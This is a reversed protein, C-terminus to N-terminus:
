QVPREYKGDIQVIGQLAAARKIVESIGQLSLLAFGIPMVLKIPWRLLGGANSSHEWVAYSQMFFPLSLWGILICGPLLFVLTGILDLWLQQRPTMMMYLIDVRVHENKKLTYSAGFMIIIAFMYWQLELWANSSNDYAYRVMANGASVLGALLVLVNCIDALKENV